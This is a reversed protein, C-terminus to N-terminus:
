SSQWFDWYTVWLANSVAEKTTVEIDLLWSADTSGSPINTEIIGKFVGNVYFKVNTKPQLLAECIYTTTNNIEMLNLTTYGTGDAVIAYLTYNSIYFGVKRFTLATYQAVGTGILVNQAPTANMIRFGFSIKRKKDWSFDMSYTARKQLACKNDIVNTTVISVYESNVIPDGDKAYGDISEFLTFWHYDNREFNGSGGSSPANTTNLNIGSSALVDQVTKELNSEMIPAESSRNLNKDFGYKFIDDQNQESQPLPINM